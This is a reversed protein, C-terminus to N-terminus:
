QETLSLVQPSHLVAHALQASREGHPIFTLVRPADTLLDEPEEGSVSGEPREIAIELRDASLVEAKGEGWEVVTLAEDLTTDLDLADLEEMSTLRYADVHVLDLKEGQATCGRHIQAITFTPSQVRARVGVARAIGQTMTTKGAGLPGNLMVLDGPRANSGVAAGVAQIAEVSPVTIKMSIESM